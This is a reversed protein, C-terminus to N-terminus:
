IIIIKKGVAYGNNSEGRQADATSNMPVMQHITFWLMEIKIFHMANIFLNQRPIRTHEALNQSFDIKGSQLNSAYINM